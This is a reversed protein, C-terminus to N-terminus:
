KEIKTGQRTVQQLFWEAQFGIDAYELLNVMVSVMVSEVQTVVNHKPTIILVVDVDLRMLYTGM